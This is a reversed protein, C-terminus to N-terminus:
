WRLLCFLKTALWHFWNADPDSVQVHCQRGLLSADDLPEDCDILVRLQNLRRPLRIAYSHDHDDPSPQRVARVTGTLPARGSLVIVARAGPYLSRAHGESFQAEIFMRQHEAIELLCEGRAVPGQSTNRRWVVGSIPSYMISGALRHAYAENHDLEAELAVFRENTEALQAELMAVSQKMQLAMPIYIPSDRQVYISRKAAELEVVIRNRSAQAQELRSRAYAESEATRAAEDASIARGTLLRQNMDLVRRAQQHLITLEDIKAKAEEASAALHEILTIRYKELELSSLRALTNAVELDRRRKNQEAKMKTLDSRLRAMRSPDAHANSLIVVADGREVAEGVDQLVQADGDNVARFPILRACPWAESTRPWMVPILVWNTFILLCVALGIIGAMLRLVPRPDRLRAAVGILKTKWCLFSVLSSPGNQAAQGDFIPETRSMGPTDGPLDRGILDEGPIASAASSANCPHSEHNLQQTDGPQGPFRPKIDM